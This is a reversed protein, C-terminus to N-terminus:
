SRVNDTPAGRERLMNNLEFYLNSTQKVGKNDHTYAELAVTQHNSCDAPLYDDYSLSHAKLKVDEAVTAIRLLRARLYKNTKLKECLGHGPDLNLEGWATNPLITFHSDDHTNEGSM